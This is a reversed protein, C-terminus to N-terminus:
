RRGFGRRAEGHTPGAGVIRAARADCGVADEDGIVAARERGELGVGGLSRGREGARIAVRIAEVAHRGVVRPVDLRRGGGRLGGGGDMERGRRLRDVEGAREVDRADRGVARFDGAAQVRPAVGIGAREQAGAEGGTARGEREARDAARVSNLGAPLRDRQGGARERRQIQQGGRDVSILRALREDDMVRVAGRLGEGLAEAVPERRLVVRAFGHGQRHGVAVGSAARGIPPREVDVSIGQRQAAALDDLLMVSGFFTSTSIKPIVTIAYAPM